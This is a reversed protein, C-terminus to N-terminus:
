WFNIQWRFYINETFCNKPEKFIGNRQISSYWIIVSNKAFTEKSTFFPGLNSVLRTYQLTYPHRCYCCLWSVSDDPCDRRMKKLKYEPEQQIDQQIFTYAYQNTHSHLKIHKDRNIVRYIKTHM